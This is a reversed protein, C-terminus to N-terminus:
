VAGEPGLPAAIAFGAWQMIANHLHLFLRAMKQLIGAQGDERLTLRRLTTPLLSEPRLPLFVACLPAKAFRRFADGPAFHAHSIVM